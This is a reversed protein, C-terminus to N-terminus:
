PSAPVRLRALKDAYVQRQRPTGSHVIAEGLAQQVRARDARAAHLRASLFALEHGTGTVGRERDPLREAEALDGRALAAEGLSLFHFPAQPELALRRAWAYSM